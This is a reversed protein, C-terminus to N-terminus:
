DNQWSNWLKKQTDNGNSEKRIHCSYIFRPARRLDTFGPMQKGGDNARKIHRHFNSSSYKVGAIVLHYKHYNWHKRSWKGKLSVKSYFISPKFGFLMFLYQFLVFTTRQLLIIWIPRPPPFALKEWKRALYPWRCGESINEKKRALFSPNLPFTQMFNSTALLAVSPLVWSLLSLKFSNQYLNFDEPECPRPACLLAPPFLLLHLVGILVLLNLLITCLSFPFM